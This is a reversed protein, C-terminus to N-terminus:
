ARRQFRELFQQTWRKGHKEPGSFDVSEMKRYCKEAIEACVPDRWCLFARAVAQFVWADSRVMYDTSYPKGEPTLVDYFFEGNWAHRVFWDLQFKGTELYLDRRDPLVIAAEIMGSVVSCLGWTHILGDFFRDDNCYPLVGQSRQVAVIHDAAERIVDLQRPLPALQQALAHVEVQQVQHYYDIKEPRDAPLAPWTPDHYPWFRGPTGEAVAMAAWLYDVMGAYLDRLADDGGFTGIYVGLAAAGFSTGNPIAVELTTAPAYPLAWGGSRTRVANRRIWEAARQCPKRVEDLGFERGSEAMALLATTESSQSEGARHPQGFSFDYGIDFGGDQHQVRVLRWLVSQARARWVNECTVRWM